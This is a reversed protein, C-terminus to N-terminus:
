YHQRCPRVPLTSCLNDLHISFISECIRQRKRGDHLCQIVRCGKIHQGRDALQERVDQSGEGTVELHSVVTINVIAKFPLGSRHLLLPHLVHASLHSRHNRIGLSDGPKTCRGLAIVRCGILKERFVSNPM